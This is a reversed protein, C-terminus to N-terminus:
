DSAIASRAVTRLAGLGVTSRGSPLVRTHQDCLRRLLEMADDGAFLSTPYACLIEAHERGLQNWLAELAFAAGVNGDGWLGAVMEGYIRVGGFTAAMRRVVGAVADDFRPGDPLGDVMFGVLTESADLSVYQGSSRSHEVDVGAARLEDEFRRRHDATAVVLAARGGRVVPLLFDCVSEALQDESVYLEVVHDDAGAKGTPAAAVSIEPGPAGIPGQAGTAHGHRGTGPGATPNPWSLVDFDEGTVLGEDRCRDLAQEIAPPTNLFVLTVGYEGALRRADILAIVGNTDTDSVGRLDVAVHLNGQDCILDRVVHDLGAAADADIKGHVAVIVAAGARGITLRRAARAPVPAHDQPSRGDDAAQPTHEIFSAGSAQGHDSVPASSLAFDVPWMATELAGLPIVDDRRTM